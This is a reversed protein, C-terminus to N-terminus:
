TYIMNNANLSLIRNLTGMAPVPKDFNLKTSIKLFIATLSDKFSNQDLLLVLNLRIVPLFCTNDNFHGFCAKM